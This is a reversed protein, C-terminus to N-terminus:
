NNLLSYEIWRVIKDRDLHLERIKEKVEDEDIFNSVVYEENFEEYMKDVDAENIEIKEKILNNKINDKNMLNNNTNDKEKLKNSMEKLQNDKESLLKQYEKLKYNNEKIILEKEKIIDNKQKILKEKEKLNNGIEKILNDNKKLLDSKNKIINERQIILNDKSKLLSEQKKIINDKEESNKKAKFKNIDNKTYIKSFYNYYCLVDLFNNEIKTEKIISDLDDDYKNIFDQNNILQYNRYNKNMSDFINKKINYLVEFGNKVTNCINIINNIKSIMIDIKEKFSELEKKLIENSGKKLQRYYKQNHGEHEDECNFCLNKSCDFCYSNFIEGHKDCIYNKNEYNVINHKPEHITKCIQCLNKNCKPCRFFLNDTVNGMNREKCQDCVIKSINIKQKKEYENLPINETKHGNKCGTLSIRYNNMSISASEHCIPCIIEKSQIYVDPTASDDENVGVVVLKENNENIPIDAENNEENYVTGNCLFYIDEKKAETKTCFRQIITGMKEKPNYQIAIKDGQYLFIISSM